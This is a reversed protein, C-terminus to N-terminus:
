VGGRAIACYPLVAVLAFTSLSGLAWSWRRFANCVWACILLIALVLFPWVLYLDIQGSNPYGLVHQTVVSRVGSRGDLALIFWVATAVGAIVNAARM